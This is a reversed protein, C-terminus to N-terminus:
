IFLSGPYPSCDHTVVPVQPPWNYSCVASYKPNWLICPVEEGGLCNNAKGSLNHKTYNSTSGKFM